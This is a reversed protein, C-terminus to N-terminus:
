RTERSSAAFARDRADASSQRREISVMLRSGGFEFGNMATIVAQAVVEDIFIFAAGKSRGDVDRLVKAGSPAWADFLELLDKETTRYPLNGCYLKM